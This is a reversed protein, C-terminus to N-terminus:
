FRIGMTEKKVIKCGQIESLRRIVQALPFKPKRLLMKLKGLIKKLPFASFDDLPGFMMVDAALHTLSHVNYVIDTGYFKEWQQM